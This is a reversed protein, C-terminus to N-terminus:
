YRSTNKVAKEKQHRTQETEILQQYFQKCFGLCVLPNSLVDSIRLSDEIERRRIVNKGREYCVEEVEFKQLLTM